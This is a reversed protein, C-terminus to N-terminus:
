KVYVCVSRGVLWSGEDVDEKVKVEMKKKM